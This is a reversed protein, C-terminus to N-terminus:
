AVWVSRVLETCIKDAPVAALRDLLFELQDSPMTRAMDELVKSVVATNEPNALTPKWVVAIHDVTLVNMTQLFNLVPTFRKMLEPHSTQSNFIDHVVRRAELWTALRHKKAATVKATTTVVKVASHMIGVAVLRLALFPANVLKTTVDLSFAEVTNM